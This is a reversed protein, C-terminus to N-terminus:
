PVAKLDDLSAEANAALSSAAETLLGYENRSGYDKKDFVAPALDARNIDAQIIIKSKGQGTALLSPLTM